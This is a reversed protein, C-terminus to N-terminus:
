YSTVKFGDPHERKFDNLHENKLKTFEEQSIQKGKTPETIEGKVNEKIQIATYHYVKSKLEVILGPLGYYVSPGAMTPISPAYWAETITNDPDKIQAKKCVLSGISKTEDLLEWKMIKLDESILFEKDLITRSAVAKKTKYNVYMEIITGLSIVSHKMQINGASIDGQQTEAAKETKKYLTENNNFLLDYYKLKNKVNKTIMERYQEPVDKFADSSTITIEEYSVVCVINEKINDQSFVFLNVFVFCASFITKM